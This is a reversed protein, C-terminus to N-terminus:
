DEEETSEEFSMDLEKIKRTLTNRGWGLLQSADRRRGGTHNLATDIMIREFQPVAQDLIASNGKKLEQDAWKRLAEQWTSATPATNDEDLLEPPLDS